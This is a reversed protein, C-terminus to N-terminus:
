FAGVAEVAAKRRPLVGIREALWATGEVDMRCHNAIADWDGAAYREAVDAGSIDPGAKPYGFRNLYFQLGHAKLKGDFSLSAMLDIVNPHKFRDVQIHPASVGLYLSRRLLLPVDYGLGNFTVLVPMGIQAHQAWYDWFWELLVPEPTDRVIRVEADCGPWQVGLAVIRALDVDLAAREALERRKERIFEAIKAEDRYNSPASVAEIYSDVDAIAVAEVDIVIPQM